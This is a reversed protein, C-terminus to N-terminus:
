CPGYRCSRTSRPVKVDDREERTGPVGAASALAAAVGPGPAADGAGTWARECGARTDTRRPPETASAGAIWRRLEGLDTTPPQAPASDACNRAGPLAIVPDDDQPVPDPPM